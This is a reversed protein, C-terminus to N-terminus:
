NEAVRRAIIRTSGDVSKILAPLFLGLAAARYLYFIVFASWLGTNGFAPRLLLDTVVYATTSLLAADRLARSRTAGLFFGDFQWAPVGLLPVAACFPLFAMAVGRAEDDRIVTELLSPGALLYILALVAGGGLSLHTTVIMARNLRRMDGGGYAEGVEKEAVFAFGDLVFAAVAIFQLLIENGALAATGLQAGGRAFWGFVFLLALTRIMIDINAVLLAKMAVPDRLRNAPRWVNRTIVLGYFLATWEAIATGAGIGAPGWDLGAVFWADLGANVGNAIVQLALLQGTRGVGLLYGSIAFQGLLAPAGWIRADFYDTGLTEVADTAGFPLFVVQRLLPSLLLIAAGIGAGIAMARHLVTRAEVEDGRGEAQAVLGTTSMRLFGFAWYLFSFIVAALAVAAIDVKDGHLGMVTIDVVGTTAIAAQSLMVPVALKLVHSHTLPSTM